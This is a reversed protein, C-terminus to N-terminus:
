HVSIAAADISPQRGYWSLFEGQAQQASGALGQEGTGAEVPKELFDYAGQRMAQVAMVVDGHGTIMIVPLEGDLQRIAALLELGDMRPMRIDTIVAFCSLGQQLKALAAEGDSQLEPQYGSLQLTQGIASLLYSDDDIVLISSNGIGDGM